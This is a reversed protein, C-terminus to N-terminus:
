FSARYGIEYHGQLTVNWQAGADGSHLHWRIGQNNFLVLRGNWQRWLGGSATSDGNFYFFTALGPNTALYGFNTASSAIACVDITEVVFPSTLANTFFGDSDPGAAISPTQTEPSAIALHIVEVNV